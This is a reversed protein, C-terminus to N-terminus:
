NVFSDLISDFMEPDAYFVYRGVAESSTSQKDSRLRAVTDPDTARVYEGVKAFVKSTMEMNRSHQTQNTM